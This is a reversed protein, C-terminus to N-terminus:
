QVRKACIRHESPSPHKSFCHVGQVAIVFSKKSYSIQAINAVRQFQIARGPNPSVTYGVSVNRHSGFKCDRGKDNRRQEARRENRGSLGLGRRARGILSGDTRAGRGALFRLMFFPRCPRARTAPSAARHTWRTLAIGTGAGVVHSSWFAAALLPCGKTRRICRALSFPGPAIRPRLRTQIRQDRASRMKRPTPSGWEPACTAKSVM